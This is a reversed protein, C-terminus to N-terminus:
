FAMSERYPFVEIQRLARSIAKGIAEAVPPPFANGVQRWQATKGGSWKIGVTSDFLRAPM